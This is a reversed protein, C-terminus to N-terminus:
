ILRLAERLKEDAQSNLKIMERIRQAAEGKGAEELERAFAEYEEEHHHSHELWKEIRIRAKESFDM